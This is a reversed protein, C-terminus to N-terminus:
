PWTTSAGNSERLSDPSEPLCRRGSEPTGPWGPRPGFDCCVHVLEEALLHALDPMVRLAQQSYDRAARDDDLHHSLLGTYM